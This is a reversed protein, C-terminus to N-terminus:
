KQDGKQMIEYIISPNDIESIPIIKNYITNKYEYQVSRLTPVGISSVKQTIHTIAPKNFTLYLDGNNIYWYSIFKDMM